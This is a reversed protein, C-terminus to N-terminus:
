RRRLRVPHTALLMTTWGGLLVLWFNVVRYALVAAVARAPPLGAATLAASMALEVLLFGGPTVGTSGVAAGAGYVLLLGGWPVPNGMAAIAAALAACDLAWNALGLGFARAYGALPLTTRSVEDLFRELGDAGHEPKGFMRRSAAALRALVAHLMARVRTFRLALLVGAAPLLYLAAGAFGAVSAATAGSAIAGAALLLALSSTSCMWSVTLAWSTTAADLGRQRFKRYSYVIALEAGAFPISQSLANGAYTIAMVSRLGVRRGNAHLLTRRSLGFATLSVAEVAVALALWGLNATGLVHFSRLLTRRQWAVIAAVVATALLTLTLRRGRGTRSSGPHGPGTARASEAGAGARPEQLM